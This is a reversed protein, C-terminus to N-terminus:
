AALRPDLEDAIRGVATNLAGAALMAETARAFMRGILGRGTVEVTACLESGGDLPVAVYEVDLDIPGTAQLALRGARAVVVEVDFEVRQNRLLGAVCLKDGAILRDRAFDRVEFPFPAWRAIADPRTLLELVHDPAGHMRAHTTWIGM